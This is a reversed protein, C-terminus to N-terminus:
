DEEGYKGTWLTTHYIWVDHYYNSNRAKQACKEAEESSLFVGHVYIDPYSKSHRTEKHLHYSVVAFVDM